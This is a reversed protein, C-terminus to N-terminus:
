HLLSKRRVQSYDCIDGQIYEVRIGSSHEHVPEDKAIMVDFARITKVDASCRETMLKVITSGLFGAAGTVVVTWKRSRDM